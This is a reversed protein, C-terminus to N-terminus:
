WLDKLRDNKKKNDRNKYKAHDNIQHKLELEKTKNESKTARELKLVVDNIESEIIVFVGNIKHKEDSFKTNNKMIYNNIKAKCMKMTILIQKFTYSAMPKQKKNAMFKGEALGKLRLVAYKPLKMSGSYKLIDTKLYEYTDCWDKWEQSDKKM